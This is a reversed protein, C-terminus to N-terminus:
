RNSKPPMQDTHSLFPPTISLFTTVAYSYIQQSTNVMNGHSKASTTHLIKVTTVSSKHTIVVERLPNQIIKGQLKNLIPLM